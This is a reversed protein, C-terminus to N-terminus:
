GSGSVIFCIDKKLSQASIPMFFAVNKSFFDLLVISRVKREAM